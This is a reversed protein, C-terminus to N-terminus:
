KNYKFRLFLLKEIIQHEINTQYNNFAREVSVISFDASKQNWFKLINEGHKLWPEEYKEIVSIWVQKGGHVFKYNESVVFDM